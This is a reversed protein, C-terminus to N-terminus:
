APASANSPPLYAHKRAGATENLQHLEARPPMGWVSCFHLRLYATLSGRTNLVVTRAEPTAKNTDLM